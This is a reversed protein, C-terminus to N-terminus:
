GGEAQAVLRLLRAYTIVGTAATSVRGRPDVVILTPLERVGLRQGLSGDSDSAITYSPRTKALHAVVVAPDEGVNVGVLTASGHHARAWRDLIPQQERCSACWTAWFELILVRGRYASLLIRDTTAETSVESLSVEPLTGGLTQPAKTGLRPLGWLGGAVSSAVLIAGWVWGSRLLGGPRM